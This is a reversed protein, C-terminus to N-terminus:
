RRPPLSPRTPRSQAYALSDRQEQLMQEREAQNQAWSYNSDAQNQGNQAAQASQFQQPLNFNNPGKSAGGGGGYLYSLAAQQAQAGHGKDLASNRDESGLLTSAAQQQAQQNAMSAQSEIQGMARQNAGQRMAMNQSRAAVASPDNASAGGAAATENLRNNQATEAAANMGSAQSYQSNIAAPNYPANQGQVTGTLYKQAVSESTPKTSSALGGAGGQPKNLGLMPGSPNQAGYQYINGLGSGYTSQYGSAGAANFAM